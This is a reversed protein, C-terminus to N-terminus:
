PGTTADWWIVAAGVLWGALLVGRFWAHAPLGPHLMTM